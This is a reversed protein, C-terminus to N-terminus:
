RPPSLAFARTAPDHRFRLDPTRKLGLSDALRNRLFGAVRKLAEDRDQDTPATFWLRACSGDGALQVMTIAVGELRADGVENQLLFNMEERILEQLRETRTGNGAERDRTRAEYKERNAKGM